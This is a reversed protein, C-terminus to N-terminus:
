SARPEEGYTGYAHGYYGQLLSHRGQNLVLSVTQGEPLYDLAEILAGRPTHGARVVVVVQGVATALVRSESSLVLPPSDLLVISRPHRALLQATVEAMRGSALLETAGERVKGAPLISLGRVDTPVIM